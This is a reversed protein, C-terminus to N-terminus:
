AWSVSGIEGSIGVYARGSCTGKPPDIELSLSPATVADETHYIGGIMTGM